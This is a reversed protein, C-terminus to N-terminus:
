KVWVGYSNFTYGNVTTNSVMVGNDDVYYWRTGQADSAIWSNRLMTGNKVYYWNAGSAIWKSPRSGDEAIYDWDGNGKDVWGSQTITGNLILKLYLAEIIEQNALVEKKESRTLSNAYEAEINGDKDVLRNLAKRAAIIKAAQKDTLTTNLSIGEIDTTVAKLLEDVSAADAILLDYYTDEEDSDVLTTMIKYLDNGAVKAFEYYRGLGANVEKVRYSGSTRQETTVTWFENVFADVYEKLAKVDDARFATIADDIADQKKDETAFKKGEGVTGEFAEVLAKLKKDLKDFEKKESKTDNILDKVDQMESAITELGDIYDAVVDENKVDGYKIFLGTEVELKYSDKTVKSIFANLSSLNTYSIKDEDDVLKSVTSGAVAEDALKKAFKKADNGVTDEKYDEVDSKLDAFLDEVKELTDAKDSAINGKFDMLSSVKNYFAVIDKDVVGSKAYEDLKEVVDDSVLVEAFEVATKVDGDIKTGVLYKLIDTQEATYGAVSAYKYANELVVKVTEKTAGNTIEQSFIEKFKLESAVKFYEKTGGVYDDAAINKGDGLLDLLDEVADKQDIVIEIVSRTESVETTTPTDDNAFVPAANSLVMALSMGVTAATKVAKSSYKNM